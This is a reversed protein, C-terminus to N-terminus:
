GYMIFERGYPRLLEIHKDSPGIQKMAYIHVKNTMTSASVNCNNDRSTLLRKLTPCWLGVATNARSGLCKNQLCADTSNLYRNKSIQTIYSRNTPLESETVLTGVMECVTQNALITMGPKLFLGDGVSYTNGPIILPSEMVALSIPNVTPITANRGKTKKANTKNKKHKSM